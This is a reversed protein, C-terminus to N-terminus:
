PAVSVRYFRVKGGATDHFEMDAGTGTLTAIQTWGNGYVSASREIIYHRGAVSPWRIVSDQASQAAARDTAARLLSKADTPDTGAVYEQSNSAGDGDADAAAQSLFNNVTGFYRLRWSDPIGDSYISSSRDSLLILGSRVQKPFSALGNPSGSAHDFHIAYAASSPAGAPITVTLTGLTVSGSLGAISSNLWSASYNGTSTSSAVTPNGLAANPNFQVATTLLPAGDLPEVTLNLLLVRLPYDGFIKATIPIQVTKGATAVADAAAFNISPPNTVFSASLKSQQLASSSMAQALLQPQPYIPEAQLVGNTWFRRYWTLSPDLSRRFTVYVDCVDLDVQPSNGFAIQNILTDNGDFLANQEALTLPGANTLYGTSPDLGGLGGCSDMSDYFDSGAPPYNLSYIASQFVQEVDSNDLNTNGFDGANFWRFPACDGAVYKRQGATVIKISNMPGAALSGNTPTAIYVDSGPAGIGDSTASPRGLQIQYTSGPAATGPVTFSYGGLIVKGQNPSFMTDHAMSYTILTQSKTNYLNAAGYRELWGVGLLNLNTDGFALSQFWGAEPSGVNYPFVTNPVAPVPNTLSTIFMAPPIIIFYNLNQPDPKWLMSQFNYAAPAVAPGPNPGANTVTLNFQLSYIITGPLPNLTVPAYFTQGPSAVFDSSAEGSAFGFTISTASFSTPSFWNSVIASAQYNDRFARVKFMTNTSIPFGVTWVNTPTAVTGLDVGNTPSPDTGNVTYYLRAGATIDSITFHAANDGNVNPNGTVFQFTAKVVASNPSGDAKAGIAKITLFPAVQSITYPAVQGPYLGDQYDSPISAFAPSPNTVAAANTTYGYTYFTSSGPTGKIVITTDNYAVYSSVPHFVSTYLGGAPFDVYGIQPDPVPPLPPTARVEASNAGEGGAGLASVVYYYTTGNIVSTDSYNTSSTNVIVTYPGGSSPSRKVNYSTADVSASWTLAVLGYNTIVTLIVPAAPPPPPPAPVPPLNAGTVERILHYYDETVYVTGNQSFLVGNPLRAEVCGYTDSPCTTAGQFGTDCWGPYTGTNTIWFSSSVGYLNTVGGASNVVKVRHNGYDAVILMNNGAKALGHPQNFRVNAKTVLRNNNTNANDGAGNFGTLNSIVGSVPNILYIGHRGSDCAAILGSDMVVVGELWAGANTVTAVTTKVGAPTIRLLANGATVYANATLDLTIANANTLQVANTYLLDGSLYDFVVVTGNNGDGRNLVYVNDSTDLAVGVPHDIAGPPTFSGPAFTITWDEGLFLQRVANNAYDAVFITGATSDMAMGIPTNFQADITTDGDVYGYYPPSVQSPGGTLTTVTPAAILNASLLLLASLV